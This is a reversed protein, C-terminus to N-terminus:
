EETTSPQGDAADSAGAQSETDNLGDGPSEPGNLADSKVNYIEAWPDHTSKEIELSKIAKDRRESADAVTKLYTLREAHTMEGIHNRLWRGALLAVQEHRCATQITASRMVDIEGHKDLVAKELESRFKGIIKRVYSAGAPLKGLSYIGHKKANGNALKPLTNGKNGPQGGVKKKAPQESDSM